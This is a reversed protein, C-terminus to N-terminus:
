GNACAVEVNEITAPDQRRRTNEWAVVDEIPYRIRSKKREDFKIFMPGHRGQRWNALTGLSVGIRTSLQRPTLWSPPLLSLDTNTIQDTV